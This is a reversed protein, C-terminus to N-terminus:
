RCSSLVFSNSESVPPQQPGSHDDEKRGIIPAESINGCANACEVSVADPSPHKFSSTFNGKKDAFGNSVPLRASKRKRTHSGTSKENRIESEVSHYGPMLGLFCAVEYVSDFIKGDPACYVAYLESSNLPQRFEVRWGEELVGRRESIFDRLAKLFIEGPSRSPLGIATNKSNRHRGIPLDMDVEEFSRTVSQTHNLVDEFGVRVAHTVAGSAKQFGFASGNYFNTHTM